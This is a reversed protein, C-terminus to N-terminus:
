TRVSGNCLFHMCSYRKLYEIIFQHGIAIPDAVRDMTVHPDRIRFRAKLRVGGIPIPHHRSIAISPHGVVVPAPRRKVISPPIKVVIYAPCPHWAVFPAGSPDVPPGSSVIIAPRRQRRAYANVNRNINRGVIPDKHWLSTKDAPINIIIIYGSSIYHIDVILGGHDVVRVHVIVL